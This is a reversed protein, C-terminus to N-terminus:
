MWPRCTAGTCVARVGVYIKVGLGESLKEQVYELLKTSEEELDERRDVSSVVFVTAGTPEPTKYM